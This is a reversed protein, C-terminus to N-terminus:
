RILNGRTAFRFMENTQTNQITYIKSFSESTKFLDIEMDKSYDIYNRFDSDGESAEDNAIKLAIEAFNYIETPLTIKFNKVRSSEGSHTLTLDMGINFIIKNKILDVNFDYSEFNGEVVYDQGELGDKIKILCSDVKNGLSNEIQEEMDKILFPAINTCKKNDIGTYCLYSIDAYEGEEAFLFHIKKKDEFYGGQIGLDELVLYVEDEICDKFLSEPNKEAKSFVDGAVGSRFLFFM